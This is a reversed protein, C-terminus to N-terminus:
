KARRLIFWMLGVIVGSIVFPSIITEHHLKGDFLQEWQFWLGTLRYHDLLGLGAIAFYILALRRLINNGM